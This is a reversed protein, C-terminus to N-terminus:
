ETSGISQKTQLGWVPPEEARIAARVGWWPEVIHDDGVTNKYLHYRFTKEVGRCTPDECQLESDPLVERRALALRCWVPARDPTRLENVDRWRRRRREYEESQALDMVRRALDRVIRLDSDAFTAAM